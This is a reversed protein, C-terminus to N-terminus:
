LDVEANAHSVNFQHAYARVAVRRVYLIRWM